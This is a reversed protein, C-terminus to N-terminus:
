FKNKEKSVDQLKKAELLNWFLYVPTLQGVGGPVPTISINKKVSSFNVDGVLKGDLYNTGVDIIIQNDNFYTEDFYNAKGIATIIINSEIMKDKLNETKSDCLLVENEEKLIHYLPLGVLNSKGIIDIKKNELSIHYEKLVKLIARVTCPIICIERNKLRDQNVSSVGDVDKKYDIYDVLEQYSFNPLIPKQIMIGTVTDDLNLELIKAIIEEKSNYEQYTLEILEIGLENSLKKKNRLYLNNEKFNGIQIIVLTLKENINQKLLEIEKERIGKCELIQM